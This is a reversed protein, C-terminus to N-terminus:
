ATFRVRRRRAVLLLGAGVALLVGAGAAMGGAAAGTVPLGGGEDACDAPETWPVPEDEVDGISPTVELGEYADFSVSTTEGPIARLEKVEGKESTLTVTFDIGDAPNHIIFILKECTEQLEFTPAGPASPTPSPSPSESESPSPSPSASPTVSPSPSPESEECNGTITAVGEREATVDAQEKDWFAKITLKAEAGAPVTQEGTLSGEGKKPIISGVAFGTVPAASPSSIEKIEATWETESNSVTWTVKVSGDELKCGTGAIEPHHASAPAAIAVAAALGLFTGGLIALPRRATPKMRNV